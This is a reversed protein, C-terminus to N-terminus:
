KLFFNTKSCAIKRKGYRISNKKCYWWIWGASKKADAIITDSENYTNAIINEIEQIKKEAILKNQNIEKIVNELFNNCDKIKKQNIYLFLLRLM